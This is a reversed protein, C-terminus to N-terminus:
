ARCAKDVRQVTLFAHCSPHAKDMILTIVIAWVLEM